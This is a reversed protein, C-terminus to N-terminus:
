AEAELLRITRSLYLIYLGQIILGIALALPTVLTDTLISDDAGIVLSVVTVIVSVLMSLVMSVAFQLWFLGNWKGSLKEDRDAVLEGHAKYEQYEGVLTCISAALAVFPIPLRAIVLGAAGFIAAKKYRDHANALLFLLCVAAVNLALTVWGTVGSLDAFGSVIILVASAIALYLLYRLWKTPSSRTEDM